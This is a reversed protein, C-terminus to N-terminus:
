AAPRGQRPVVGRPAALRGDTDGGEVFCPPPADLPCSYEAHAPQIRGAARLRGPITVAAILGGAICLGGAILVATQFGSSFLAPDLYSRETLGALAPLAAVAILGAARAVDNNVASAMGAKELPAAALVASTLPAVTLSLGFAFILIAPLFATVYPQGAQVRWLLALGIGALIPGITMPLRPGIRQSLRGARPSLALMVFTIPLLAVGSALPSYGLVQQLQIPVLFLAGGLAGYVVFTVANAGSFQRSRFISLPLMPHAIRHEWWGFAALILLGAAIAIVVVASTWGLVPGEILGYVLAALGGSALVAGTVDLRGLEGSERSDPVHRMAIWVVAAVLPLNLLFIWRWSAADILYGGLFPGIALAVGSLGSWMGIAQAKDEQRFSSQIIALSGPTLMAGGVGQLARAAVLVGANPAIGCLLSAVAFWLVGIVFIRRRGYHDGLSGGILILASLTLTYATVTWQLASLGTDFERGITPLAIGVVTGDLMAVASGLATAAIIWRGSASHLSVGTSGGATDM